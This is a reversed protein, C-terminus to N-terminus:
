QIGRILNKDPPSSCCTLFLWPNPAYSPDLFKKAQSCFIKSFIAEFWIRVLGMILIKKSSNLMIIFYLGLSHIQNCRKFELRSDFSMIIRWDHTERDIVWTKITDEIIIMSDCQTDFDLTMQNYFWIQSRLHNKRRVKEAQPKGGAFKSGLRFIALPFIKFSQVVWLRSNNIM